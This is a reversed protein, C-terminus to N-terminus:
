LPKTEAYLIVESIPVYVARTSTTGFRTPSESNYADDVRQLVKGWNISFATNKLLRELEANSNSFAVYMGRLEVDEVKIGHRALIAAILRMNSFRTEDSGSDHSQMLGGTRIHEAVLAILEGISREFHRGDYEFRIPTQVIHKVLRLEDREQTVEVQERWDQSSIWQRAHEPTVLSDSELMYAGALLAGIQDGVRKSKLYNAAVSSFIKSNKRVIDINRMSRGRLRACWEPTLLEAVMPVIEEEFHKQGEATNDKIMSLVTVRTQDATHKVNVGISAFAFMTRSIFNGGMDGGGAKVTAGGASSAGRMLQMVNEINRKANESEGEAEDFLVPLADIKIRHRIGAESSAGRVHIAFDALCPKIIEDVVWSKGAGAPATIWIHPRWTLAGCIPALAIFGALLQAYIPKEWALLQCLEILRQSEEVPLPADLNATIPTLREYIYPSDYDYIGVSHGDVHLNRGLHVVPKSHEWWAGRGRIREATFVDKKNSQQILMNVAYAIRMGNFSGGDGSIFKKEWWNLPALSMLNGIDRLQKASFQFVQCTQKTMFFHTDRNYGLFRFPADAFKDEKIKKQEPQKPADLPPLIEIPIFADPNVAGASSILEAVQEVTAGEQIMDSIDWGKSMGKPPVVVRISTIGADKAHHILGPKFPNREDGAKGFVCDHGPQDNDPWVIIQKGALLKWDAKGVNNTGQPWTVVSSEPFMKRAADVCKEGEVVLVTDTSDTITHAGYLPRPEAFSWLTWYAELTDINMCWQVSPTFKGGDEFDCRLVYGLLVGSTTKYEYVATPRLTTFEKDTGRRKPNWLRVTKDGDMLPPAKKTPLIRVIPAIEEYHAPPPLDKVAKLEGISSQGTLYEAAATIELGYFERLWDFVDGHAGCGFCHYFQKDDIVNFSPSKESHFPCLGKFEKGDKKLPVRQSIIESLRVSAKIDAIPTKQM